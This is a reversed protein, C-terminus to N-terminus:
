ILRFVSVTDCSVMTVALHHKTCDFALGRLNKQFQEKDLLIGIEQCDASLQIVRRDGQSAVYVSGDDACSLGQLGYTSSSIHTYTSAVQGDLKVCVVNGTCRINNGHYDSVYVSPDHHMGYHTSALYFASDFMRTGDVDTSVSFLLNGDLSMVRLSTDSICGVVLTTGVCTIGYCAGAIKIDGATALTSGLSVLQVRQEQPLTVAATTTNVVVVGYVNSSLQLRHLPQGTESFLKLAYNSNDALLIQGSDTYAVGFSNCTATDGPMRANFDLVKEGKRQRFSKKRPYKPLDAHIRVVDVKGLEKLSTMLM